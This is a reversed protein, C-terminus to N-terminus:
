QMCMDVLYPQIKDRFEDVSVYKKGNSSIIRVPITESGEGNEAPVQLHKEDLTFGYAYGDNAQYRAYLTTIDVGQMLGGEYLHNWDNVDDKVYVFTPQDISIGKPLGGGPGAMSEENVFDIGMNTVNALERLQVYTHGGYLLSNNIIVQSGNVYTNFPLPQIEAAKAQTAPVLAGAAMVAALVMATIRKKM